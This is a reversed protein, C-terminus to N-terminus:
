TFLKVSASGIYFDEMPPVGVITAPYVAEKRHTIATIHLVPYLDPLSYYGTHDGFPGEWRLEDLDCWGELVMEAHAPVLLDNTVCKVVEVPEGRSVMQGEKVLLKDNHAYASLYIANHKIIVLKGYGRLGSGAYVVKGPASAYVPQGRKGAIDIGKNDAESFRAIVRGSAPM